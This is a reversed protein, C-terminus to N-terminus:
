CSSVRSQQDLANVTRTAVITSPMLAPKSRSLTAKPTFVWRRFQLTVSLTYLLTQSKFTCYDILPNNAIPAISLLNSEEIVLQCGVGGVSSCSSERQFKLKQESHKKKKTIEHLEGNQCAKLDM